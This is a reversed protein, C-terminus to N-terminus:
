VQLWLRAAAGHEPPAGREPCPLTSGVGHWGKGPQLWLGAGCPQESDSQETHAAAGASGAASGASPEPESSCKTHREIAV